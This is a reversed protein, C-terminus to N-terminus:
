GSTIQPETSICTGLPGCSNGCGPQQLCQASSVCVCVSGVGQNSRPTAISSITPTAILSTLALAKLAARRSRARRTHHPTTDILRVQALQDLALWVAGEADRDMGLKSVIDDVTSGGDCLGWVSAATTNLCFARHASLDYVLTEDSMQQVVLASVRAVPKYADNM